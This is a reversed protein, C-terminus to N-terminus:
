SKAKYTKGNQKRKPELIAPTLAIGALGWWLYAITDDTWAHSLMNVATLGVLTALLIQALVSARARWLEMGVLINIAVFLGIGIVGVEQGIQLFYNESIEAPRNNHASAPGATGPGEGLPHHAVDEAGIKIATARAENSSIESASSSSTHLLTNQAEQHNKLLLLTGAVVALAAFSIILWFKADKARKQSWWLLLGISIMCGIWASRSYSYFFVIFVALLGLTRRYSAKRYLLVISAIILVLYAGLPNAGRLTSQIRPYEINSDVTQYAPITKPGYGFHTLFDYPLVFKQFLGFLVVISAPILLISKWNKKLFPSSAALVYCIIFFLLFRLNVIFAYFLATKNVNGNHLAWTGLLLHLLIYILILWLIRSSLFQQRLQKSRWVLYVCFPMLALLVIEKWVRLLDYYGINSGLWTTFFAHFPVLVLIGAAVISLNRALRSEALFPKM